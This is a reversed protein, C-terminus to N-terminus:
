QSARRIPFWAKKTTESKSDLLLWTNGSCRDLLVAYTVAGVDVNSGGTSWGRGGVAYESHVTVDFCGGHSSAQAPQSELEQVMGIGALLCICGVVILVTRQKMDRRGPIQRIYASLPFLPMALCKITSGFKSPPEVGVDPM